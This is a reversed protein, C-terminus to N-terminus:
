DIFPIHQTYLLLRARIEKEVTFERMEHAREAARQGTAVASEFNGAAAYAAALTDLEWPSGSELASAEILAIAEKPNRLVADATTALTWALNNRAGLDEPSLRLTERGHFIAAPANGLAAEIDAMARHLEAISHFSLSPM